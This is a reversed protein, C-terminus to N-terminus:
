VILLVELRFTSCSAPECVSGEWAVDGAEDVNCLWDGGGTYGDDCVINEVIIDQDYNTASLKTHSSSFNISVEECVKPICATGEWAVSGVDGACTWIGGGSFGPFCEVLTSRDDDVSFDVDPLITSSNDPTLSLCTIAECSPVNDFVGGDCTFSNQSPAYGNVCNLSLEQGNLADFRDKGSLLNSVAVSCDAPVCEVESWSGDADCTTLGGVMNDVCDVTYTGQYKLGSITGFNLANPIESSVLDDCTKRECSPGQWAVDGEGGGDLECTWNVTAGNDLVKM